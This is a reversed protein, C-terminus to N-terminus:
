RTYSRHWTFLDRKEASGIQDGMRRAGGTPTQAHPWNPTNDWRLQSARPRRNVMTNTRHRLGPSTGTPMGCTEEAGLFEAVIAFYDLVMEHSWWTDSGGETGPLQFGCHGGTATLALLFYPSSRFLATPLAAVPPLLPDDHSRLCLVPVAVEDADRLPENRDWYVEWDEGGKSGGAKGSCFMLEEMHRLSSSGLVQDVDMVASLASEYRSLQLKRYLLVGWHYLSPLATEFWLRGQLIPSLCAAATLYSSSGCEGLYSLLVGSGSGESIALLTSSPHRSRIYSIAQILDSPDGFEQLRPTVLPCGAVGRSHFVVPYFGQRLAQACLGLLHPTVLGWANPVVVLVPPCSSYCGLARQGATLEVKLRPHPAGELWVAWDLAVVGGDGMQLHDRAFRIEKDSVGVFGALTQLHPDDWPWGVPCSWALSACRQLLFYALATPKYLLQPSPHVMSAPPSLPLDLCWCVCLWLVRLAARCLGGVLGWVQPLRLFCAVLLLIISPLLCLIGNWMICVWRASAPLSLSPIWM